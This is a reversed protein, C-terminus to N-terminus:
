RCAPRIRCAGGTVGPARPRDTKSPEAICIKGKATATHRIGSVFGNPHRHLFEWEGYHPPPYGLRDEPPAGIHINGTAAM